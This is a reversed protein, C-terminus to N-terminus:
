TVVQDKRWRDHGQEGQYLQHLVSPQCSDTFWMGWWWCRPYYAYSFMLLIISLDYIFVQHLVLMPCLWWLSMLYGASVAMKGDLPLLQQQRGIPSPMIQLNSTLGNIIPTSQECCFSFKCPLLSNIWNHQSIVDNCSYFLFKHCFDPSKSSVMHCLVLSLFTACLLSGLRPSKQLTSEYVLLIALGQKSICFELKVISLPILWGLGNGVWGGSYLLFPLTPQNISQNTPQNTLLKTPQNIATSAPPQKPWQNFLRNGLWLM